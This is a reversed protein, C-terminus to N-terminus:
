ELWLPEGCFCPIRKCNSSVHLKCSPCGDLAHNYDALPRYHEEDLRGGVLQELWEHGAATLIILHYTERSISVGHGFRYGGAIFPERIEEEVQTVQLPAVRALEAAIQAAQIERLKLIVIHARM